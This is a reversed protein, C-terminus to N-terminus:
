NGSDNSSGLSSLSIVNVGDPRTYTYGTGTIINLSKLKKKSVLNNSIDILKKATEDIEAEIDGLKVEVFIFDGNNLEVVEDVENNYSDRYHYVEGGLERAYVVLDHYVQSEFLFGFYNLDDFVANSDLDLAAVALSPDILHRKSSERLTAASRIHTKWAKQERVMMLKTLDELYDYTVQRSLTIGATGIVDCDTDTALTKTDVTTAINRALSQVLKRAKNTDRKVKAVRSIDDSTLLKYYSKNLLLAQRETLGLNEPWGGVALKEAISRLGIQNQKVSLTKRAFLDKLSVAGNSIGLESWTMTSMETIVYRGAGSHLEIDSGLTASGTLIFQGKAKREDVEIKTDNWINPVEQWEDILRPTDGLLASSTDIQALTKNRTNQLNIDSKAFQKATETKGCAKVGRVFVVGAVELGDKISNEIIRKRYNMIEAYCLCRWYTL